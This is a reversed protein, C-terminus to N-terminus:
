SSGYQSQRKVSQHRARKMNNSSMGISNVRNPNNFFNHEKPDVQVYKWGSHEWRCPVLHMTPQAGIESDLDEHLPPKLQKVSNFDHMRSANSAIEEMVQRSRENAYNAARKNSKDTQMINQGANMMNALRRPSLM